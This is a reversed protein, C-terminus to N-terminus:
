RCVTWLACACCRGCRRIPVCGTMSDSGAPHPTRRAPGPRALWRSVLLRIEATRARPRRREAHHRLQQDVRNQGRAHPTRNPSATPSSPPGIQCQTRSVTPQLTGSAVERPRGSRILRSPHSRALDAIGTAQQAPRGRLDGFEGAADMAAHRTPTNPKNPAGARGTCTSCSPM